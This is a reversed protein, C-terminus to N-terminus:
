VARRRLCFFSGRDKNFPGPNKNLAPLSRSERLLLIMPEAPKVVTNPIPVPTVRGIYGGVFTGAGPLPRRFQLNCSFLQPQGRNNLDLVKKSDAHQRPKSDRHCASTSRYFHDLSRGNTGTVQLGRPGYLEPRDVPHDVRPREPALEWPVM